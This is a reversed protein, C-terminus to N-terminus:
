QAHQSQGMCSTGTRNATLTLSSVVRFLKRLQCNAEQRPELSCQDSYQHAIGELGGRNREVSPSMKARSVEGVVGGVQRM